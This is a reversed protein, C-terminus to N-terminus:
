HSYTFAPYTNKGRIMTKNRSITLVQSFTTSTIKGLHNIPFNIQFLQFLM